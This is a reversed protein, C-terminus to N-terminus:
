REAGALVNIGVDGLQDPQALSLAIAALRVVRRMSCINRGQDLMM